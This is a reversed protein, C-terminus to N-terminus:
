ELSSLCEENLQGTQDTSRAEFAFGGGLGIGLKLWTAKADLTVAEGL